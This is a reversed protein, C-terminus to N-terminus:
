ILTIGYKAALEVRVANANASSLAADWYIVEAIRGAFYKSVANTKLAGLTANDAGTVDGAWDGNNAGSTATITQVKQNVRMAILSSNSSWEYLKYSTGAVSDGNLTDVVGANNQNYSILSTSNFGLEFFRDASAEDGQGFLTVLKAADQSSVIMCHGAAGSGIADIFELFDDTGDFDIAPQGNVAGQIYTPRLATTLQNAQYRTGERSEWTCIPDGNSPEGYQPGDNFKWHDIPATAPSGGAALTAIDADSLPTNYFRIDDMKGQFLCNASAGDRWGFRIPGTPTVITGVSATQTSYTCEVGNIFLSTKRATGVTGAESYRMAVHSWVNNTITEVSVSTADTNDYNIFANLVRTNWVISICRDFDDVSFFYLASSLATPKVWLSWTFEVGQVTADATKTVVFDDVGDFYLSYGGACSPVNPVDTSWANVTDMGTLVGHFSGITDITTSERPGAGAIINTDTGVQACDNANVTADNANTNGAENLNWAYTIKNALEASLEAYYKGNGRNYTELVDDATYAYGVAIRVRSIGGLWCNGTSKSGNYSGIARQVDTTPTFSGALTALNNIIGASVLGNVYLLATSTARVVVLVIHSWKALSMSLGGTLAVRTTGDSVGCILDGVTAVTYFSAGPSPASHGGTGIIYKSASFDVPKIFCEITFDNTGYQPMAAMYFKQDVGDFTRSGSTGVGRDASLWLKPNTDQINFFSKQRNKYDYDRIRSQVTRM